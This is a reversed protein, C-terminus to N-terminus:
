SSRAAAKEIARRLLVSVLHQRYAKTAHMDDQTTVAQAAAEAAADLDPNSLDSGLLITEAATLRLPTSSIGCAGISILTVQGDGGLRIMVGIAALAFDGRRRTFEEFAWGAGQPLAGFRAQVVIEDFRRSTTMHFTFFDKAAIIRAGDKSQAVVSGDTLALIMPMEAAADAHCLSGVITGRNRIPIHAVQALAERILPNATFVGDDLELDRHRVMAGVEITEGQVSIDAFGPLGQIDVLRIPNALRMNMAPVLSQGGALVVSGDDTELLGLAEDLSAPRLYEFVPPKM